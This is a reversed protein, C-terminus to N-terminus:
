TGFIANLLVKATTINPPTSGNIQLNTLAIDYFDEGINIRVGTLSDWVIYKGSQGFYSKPQSTGETIFIVGSIKTLNTAM